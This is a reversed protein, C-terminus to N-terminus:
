TSKAPTKREERPTRHFCKKYQTAFHKANPFHLMGAIHEITLEPRDRLLQRSKHLRMMLISSNLNISRGEFARSLSRTSCNLAESITLRNLEADMYNDTIYNIAQHYLQILGEDKGQMEQKDLQQVYSAYLKGLLLGIHHVTTFPGFAIKSFQELVQRNAYSIPVATTIHNNRQEYQKRLMPQESLLQQRSAAAIGLLLVWQKEAPVTLLNSGNSTFSFITGSQSVDGTPFSLRGHLQICLWFIEEEKQPLEFGTLEKPWGKLECLIFDHIEFRIYLLYEDLKQRTAQHLATLHMGKFTERTVPKSSLTEKWVHILNKEPM